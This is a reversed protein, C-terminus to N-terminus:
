IKSPRGSSKSGDFRDVFVPAFDGLETPGQEVIQLYPRDPDLTGKPDFDLGAAEAARKLETRDYESHLRWIDLDQSTRGEMGGFLCAASGILCLRVPPGDKDLAEGLKELFNLWAASDLNLAM